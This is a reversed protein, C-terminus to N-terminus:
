KSVVFQFDSNLAKQLIASVDLATVEKNGTVNAREMFKDYDDIQEIVSNKDLVFNMLFKADKAEVVGNGDVDGLIDGTPKPDDPELIPDPYTEGFNGEKATTNSGGIRVLYKEGDELNGNFSFTFKNDNLTVESAEKTGIYVADSVTYIYGDQEKYKIVVATYRQYTSPNTIFGTITVLGNEDVKSEKLYIDTGAFVNSFVCGFSIILALLFAIKKM